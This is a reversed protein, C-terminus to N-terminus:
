TPAIEFCAARTQTVQAAYFNFSLHEVRCDGMTSIELEIISSTHTAQLCVSTMAVERLDKIRWGEDKM